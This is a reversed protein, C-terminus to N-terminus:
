GSDALACGLMAFFQKKFTTKRRVRQRQSQMRLEQMFGGQSSDAMREPAVSVGQAGCDPGHIRAAAIRPVLMANMSLVTTFTASGARCAVKLAVTM